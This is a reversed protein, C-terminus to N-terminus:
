RAAEDLPIRLSAVVGQPANERLALSARGAYMTRLRERLNALGTGPAGRPDLGAGTDAVEVALMGADARARIDIRGGQVCPDIGHKVANEVLTLLAMPPFPAAKLPEAADIAYQLRDPMRVRMLELYAGVLQLEEGLTASQARLRPMSARLYAILAKLVVAAQPSGSEVLEQVNALTNSLFHPEIQAQLAKLQADVAQKELATRQLEFQLAQARARAERERVLYGLALLLGVGVATFSILLIGSIAKGIREIDGGFRVTYVLLTALPGAIVLAILQAVWTPLRRQQWNGAIVFATFAAFGVFLTRGFMELLSPMFAPKLLLAALLAFAAVWAARKFTFGALLSRASM